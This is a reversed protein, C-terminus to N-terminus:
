PAVSASAGRLGAGARPQVSRRPARRARHCRHRPGIALDEEGLLWLAHSSWAQVFVGLDTGLSSRQPHSMDYAELAADFHRRAPELEGFSILAGGMAQHAECLSSRDAAGRALAREAMDRAARLDGLVFRVSFGAWLWRVAVRPESDARLLAFVRDLNQEVEPASYGRASNLAAALPDRLALERDDRERGSPLREVLALAQTLCRIAEENASVRAAVGAARAFFAIARGPQGGRELHMAISASVEDLRDAFLLEMAQAIRRHILRRRAPGIGNYAVERIRDHTFDWREGAQARVIQRRWLEDLATVLADEELDSVRALVDFTFDRGVVAAVEATSRAQESLLALRAAVVSQVRPLGTAAHGSGGRGTGDTRARHHVASPRRNGSVHALPRGRRASARRRRERASGDGGSRAPRARADDRPERTRSGGAITRAAPNDQEEETRVTGVVLCASESTSRLFYHLWELTEADSWQLDDVVLLLPVARRFAQSLSEFFRVRQWSELQRDPPAVEPRTTLLEPHLRAIDTLWVEDLAGLAANLSASQLWAAVPAYALRGEGPYCRTTAANINKARCWDVLEEVLRTKGIGAEGRVLFLQPGGTEAARWARVLARWEADRGVFAYTAAPPAPRASAEDVDLDLIERYTARTAASPQVGLEKKVLAACQQYVHLATAREGRRAHCRMLACWTPEDLSDLRLLRQAREIADGFARDRELMDVLRALVTRAREQLRRRDPEIWEATCDPLLDGAYLDSAQELSARHGELGHAAAAEFTVIDVTAAEGRWELTRPATDILSDLEPWAERLHHLERRLNTLAQAETSDPWLVGAVRQRPIAHQAHLALYAVLQQQRAGPVRAAPRAARSSM